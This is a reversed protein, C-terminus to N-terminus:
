GAVRAVSDALEALAAGTAAFLADSESPALVAPSAAPSCTLGGRFTTLVFATSPAPADNVPECWAADAETHAWDGIIDPIEVASFARTYRTRRAQAEYTATMARNLLVPPAYRLLPTGLEGLMGAGLERFPIFADRADDVIHALPRTEVDRLAVPEFGSLNGAGRLTHLPRRGNVGVLWGSTSDPAVHHGIVRSWAVALSALLVHSPRWGRESNGAVITDLM